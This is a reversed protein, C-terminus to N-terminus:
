LRQSYAEKTEPANPWAIFYHSIHFFMSAAIALALLSVGINRAFPNKPFVTFWQQLMYTIGSAIFIYVFPLLISLRVPGNLAVLLISLTLGGFLLRTRDLRLRFIYAYLGIIFFVSSFIDLLPLRGLWMSPMDPGVFFLQLPVNLVNKLYDLLPPLVEPMGLYTKILAPNQLIVFILPLILAFGLLLSGSLYAPAVTALARYIRKAQWVTGIVIFWILGPIYVLLAATVVAVLLMLERRKSSLLWTWALFLVPLLTYLIEPTAVRANHLFWASSAYLATGLIAIRLTHWMKLLLFLSAVSIFAFGVSVSRLLTKSAEGTLQFVHQTIAHPAYLMTDTIQGRDATYSQYASELESVGPTLTGLRFGLLVILALAAIGSFFVPQILAPLYISLKKM